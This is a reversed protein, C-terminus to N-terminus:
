EWVEGAAANISWCDSAVANEAWCIFGTLIAVGVRIPIGSGGEFGSVGVSIGYTEQEM